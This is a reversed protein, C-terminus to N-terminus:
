HAGWFASLFIGGRQLLQFQLFFTCKHVFTVVTSIPMLAKANRQATINPRIKWTVHLGNRMVRQGKINWKLHRPLSYNCNGLELIRIGQSLLAVSIIRFNNGILVTLLPSRNKSGQWIVSRKDRRLKRVDFIAHQHPYHRGCKGRLKLLEAHRNLTNCKRLQETISKTINWCTLLELIDM